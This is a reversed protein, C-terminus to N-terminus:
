SETPALDFANWTRGDWYDDFDDWTKNRWVDDFDDWTPALIVVDIVQAVEGPTGTMSIGVILAKASLGSDPDELRVIHGIDRTWNLKVRIGNVKPTPEAVRSWIYNSLETADAANQVHRTLDITLPNTAVASDAGQTVLASNEQKAYRAPRLKLCPAGTSDVLYLTSSTKNKVVINVRGASVEVTSIDISEYEAATGTGDRNPYAGFVSVIEGGGYSVPQWFTAGPAWYPLDVPITLTQFPALVIVDTAEWAPPTEVGVTGLVVNAPYYTAEVRDATDDPDISWAIDLVDREVEITEVIEGAGAMYERNRVVPVGDNRVWAAGLYAACIEQIGKWADLVGGETSKAPLWPATITGLLLDVDATPAAWLAPSDEYTIQAGSFSSGASTIIQGYEGSGGYMNSDPTSTVWSSWDADPSSRVRAKIEYWKIDADVGTRVWEVQVRMPHDASLGPVYTGTTWGASIDNTVAFVGGPRIEIAARDTRAYHTLELRVTGRVNATFYSSVGNRSLDDAARFQLNVAGAPSIPGTSRDWSEPNGIAYLGVEPYTSGNMPVSLICSDIPAPTSYYGAQRLLSDAIWAPDCSETDSLPLKNILSRIGYSSEILTVPISPSLLAGEVPDVQWGGLSVRESSTAGKHSAYLDAPAGAAAKRDGIGWPTVPAGERPQKLIAKAEGISLGSRARVNGPLVNGVLQRTVSWESVEGIGAPTDGDAPPWDSDRLALFVEPLVEDDSPEPWSLPLTM